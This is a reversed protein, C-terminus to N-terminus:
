GRAGGAFSGDGDRELMHQRIDRRRENDLRRDLESDGNQRLNGKRIETEAGLRREGGPAPHEAVRLTQHELRRSKRHEGADGDHERHEPEVQKTVAQAIQEIRAKARPASTSRSTSPRFMSKGVGSPDRRMTRLAEKPRSSPPVSPMTPSDPEPLVIVARANIPRNGSPAAVVPASRNSPRASAVSSSASHRVSRPSRMAM